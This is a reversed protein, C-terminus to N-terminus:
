DKNRQRRRQRDDRRRKGSSQAAQKREEPTMLQLVELILADGQVALKENIERVDKLAQAIAQSDLPEATAIEISKRRALRRQQFLVRPREDASIDLNKLATDLIERRREPALHGVIRRADGVNQGGKPPNQPREVVTPNPANTKAIIFGAMLGNLAISAILVVMGLSVGNSKGADSM